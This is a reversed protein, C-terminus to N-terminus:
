QPSRHCRVDSATLHVSIPQICKYLPLYTHTYTHTHTRTHTNTHTHVHTHIRTHTHTHTYTRTHTHVHTHISIQKIFIAGFIVSCQISHAHIHSNCAHQSRLGFNLVSCSLHQSSMFYLNKFIYAVFFMSIPLYFVRITVVCPAYIPRLIYLTCLLSCTCMPRLCLM